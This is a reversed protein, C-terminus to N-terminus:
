KPVRYVGGNAKGGDGQSVWYVFRDDVAIALPKRQGFALFQPAGRVRKDSRMVTGEAPLQGVTVWYVYKEDVAIGRPDLQGSTITKVAGGKLPVSQVLGSHRGSTFYVSDEDLAIDAPYRIDTALVTELLGAFLVARGSRSLDDTAAPGGDLWVVGAASCAVARAIADIPYTRGLGIGPGTGV